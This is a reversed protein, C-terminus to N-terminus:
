SYLHTLSFDVYSLTSRFIVEEKTHWSDCTSLSSSSYDVQETHVDELMQELINMVSPISSCSLRQDSVGRVCKHDWPLIQAPLFLRSKFTGPAIVTFAICCAQWPPFCASAWRSMVRKKFPSKLHRRGDPTAQKSEQVWSWGTQFTGELLIEGKSDNKINDSPKVWFMSTAMQLFSQSTLHCYDSCNCPPTWSLQGLLQNKKIIASQLMRLSTLLSRFIHTRPSPCLQRFLFLEARHYM